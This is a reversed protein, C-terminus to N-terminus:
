KEGGGWQCGDEVRGAWGHKVKEKWKGNRWGMGGMHRWIGDMEWGVESGKWKGMRASGEKVKNHKEQEQEGMELVGGGGCGGWDERRGGGQKEQVLVEKKRMKRVMLVDNKQTDATEINQILKIFLILKTGM